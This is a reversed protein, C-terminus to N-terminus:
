SKEPRRVNVKFEDVQFNKKELKFNPKDVPAGMSSLSIKQPTLNKAIFDDQDAVVSEQAPESLPENDFEDLALAREIDSLDIKEDQLALFQDEALDRKITPEEDLIDQVDAPNAELEYSSVTSSMTVEEEAEDAQSEISYFGTPPKKYTVSDEKVLPVPTAAADEDLIKKVSAKEPMPTEALQVPSRDLTLPNMMAAKGTMRGLTDKYIQEREQKKYREIRRELPDLSYFLVALLICGFGAIVGVVSWPVAFGGIVKSKLAYSISVLNTGAVEEKAVIYQQGSSLRTEDTLTAIYDPETHAALMNETTALLSTSRIGSGLDFFKQFYDAAGVVALEQAGSTKFRLILFKSGGRDQFLQVLIPRDAQARNITLAKDLYSTNWREAITGSRAIMQQVHPKGSVMDVRAIAFFPDLQVWNINAEDMQLEYSSLTNRLQSLQTAVGTKLLGVSSRLNTQMSFAKEDRFYDNLKYVVTALLIFLVISIKLVLGTKNSLQTRAKNM